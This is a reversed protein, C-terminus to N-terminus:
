TITSKEYKIIINMLKDERVEVGCLELVVAVGSSVNQCPCLYPIPPAEVREGILTCIDNFIMIIYVVSM